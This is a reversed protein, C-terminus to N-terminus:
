SQLCAKLNIIRSLVRKPRIRGALVKGLNSLDYGLEKALWSRPQARAWELLEADAAAQAQKRAVLEEAARHLRTLDDGGIEVDGKALRTVAHDTVGALKSLRKLGVKDIRVANRIADIM